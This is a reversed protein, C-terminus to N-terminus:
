VISNLFILIILFCGFNFLSVAASIPKGRKIFLYLNVCSSVLIILAIFIQLLIFM